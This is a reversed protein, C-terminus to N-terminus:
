VKKLFVIFDDESEGVNIGDEVDLYKEMKCTWMGLPSQGVAVHLCVDCDTSCIQSLFHQNTRCVDWKDKKKARRALDRKEKAVRRRFFSRM